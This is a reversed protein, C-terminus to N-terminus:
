LIIVNETNGSIYKTFSKIIYTFCDELMYKKYKTWTEAFRLCHPWTIFNEYVFVKTTKDQFIWKLDKWM